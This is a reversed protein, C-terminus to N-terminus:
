AAEKVVQWVGGPAALDPRSIGMIVRPQPNPYWLKGTADALYVVRSYPSKATYVILMAPYPPAPSPTLYAEAPGARGETALRLAEGNDPHDLIPQALERHPLPTPM